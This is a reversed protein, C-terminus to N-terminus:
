WNPYDVVTSSPIIAALNGGDADMVYISEGGTNATWEFVVKAGDPSWSPFSEAAASHTLNVPNAGDADMIFLDPKGDRDSMFLIQEDAIAPRGLLAAIMLSLGIKPM